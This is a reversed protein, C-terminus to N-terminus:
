TSINAGTPAAANGEDAAEDQALKDIVPQSMGITEMLAKAVSIRDVQTCINELLEMLPMPEKMLHHVIEAIDGMLMNKFVLKIREEGFRQNAWIQTALSFKKLTFKRGPFAELEFSSETPKLDEIRFKAM